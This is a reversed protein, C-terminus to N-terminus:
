LMKEPKPTSPKGPKTEGKEKPGLLAFGLGRASKKKNPDTFLTALPAAMEKTMGFGDMLSGKVELFRSDDREEDAM